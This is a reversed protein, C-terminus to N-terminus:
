LGGGGDDRNGGVGAVGSCITSDMKVAEGHQVEAGFSDARPRRLPGSRGDGGVVAPTEGCRRRRM